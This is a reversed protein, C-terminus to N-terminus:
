SKSYRGAERYLWSPIIVNPMDFPALLTTIGFLGPLYAGVNIATPTKGVGGKQNLIAIISPMIHKDRKQWL